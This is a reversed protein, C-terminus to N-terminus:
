ASENQRVCELRLQKPLVGNNTLYTEAPELLPAPMCAYFDLEEYFEIKNSSALIELDDIPNFPTQERNGTFLNPM